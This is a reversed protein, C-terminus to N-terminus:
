LEQSPMIGGTFFYKAMWSAVGEIDYKYAYKAHSFVHVFLRGDPKLWTSIREFLLEYNWLHEFMEISVVRDFIESTHFDNIDVTRVEVNPLGRNGATSHIYERQPASNSLAVIRSKPYNAAMWLTLSGWGCGLELIDMGDVIGARECVLKLSEAEADNLNTIGTPWYCGSYKRHRGLVLGFFEPPLEYHQDNAAASQLSIQGSRMANAMALLREFRSDEDECHERSLRTRCGSRIGARIVSDPVNGTEVLGIAFKTLSDHM